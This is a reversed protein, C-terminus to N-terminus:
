KPNGIHVVEDDQVNATQETYNKSYGGCCISYYVNTRTNSIEYTSYFISIPLICCITKSHSYTTTYRSYGGIVWCCCQYGDSSKGFCGICWSTTNRM